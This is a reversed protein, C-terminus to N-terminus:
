LDRLALVDKLRADDLEIWPLTPREDEPVDAVFVIDQESVLDIPLNVLLTNDVVLKLAPVPPPPLIISLQPRPPSKTKSFPNM